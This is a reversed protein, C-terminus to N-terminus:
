PIAIRQSPHWRLARREIATILFHIALGLFGTALALAYLEENLGYSQRLEDGPRARAHGHLAGGHVRPDAGGDLRHPAGHRHVPRREAPHDALPTRVAGVGFSRGTDIAIPDVDRVGYMTQVLLPWFAGFAALFIESNLTTGLTLFLLPILAASPIPRLFEIPVRFANAAFDSSGLLIGIPVALVTAIALGLAWGRITYLLDHWFASTRM